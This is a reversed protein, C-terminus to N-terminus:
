LDVAVRNSQEAQPCMVDADILLELWYLTEDLEQLATQENVIFSSRHVIFSSRHVIFSSRHVIFSSRHVIFSSLHVIFSSRHVIFSSRHVIFSSCTLPSATQNNPRRACSTRM